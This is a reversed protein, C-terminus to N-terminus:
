APPPRTQHPEGSTKWPDGGPEHSQRKEPQHRQARQLSQARQLWDRWFMQLV